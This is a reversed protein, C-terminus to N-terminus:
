RARRVRRRESRNAARERPASRASARDGPRARGAAKLARVRAAGPRTPGTQSRLRSGDAVEIRGGAFRRQFRAVQEPSLDRNTVLLVPAGGAAESRLALQDMAKDVIKAALDRDVPHSTPLSKMEVLTGDRLVADTEHGGVDASLARVKSGLRAAVRLEFSPGVIRSVSEAKALRSVVEHVGAVDQVRQLAVLTERAHPAFNRRTLVQRVADGDVSRRALVAELARRAAAGGPGELEARVEPAAGRLAVAVGDGSGSETSRPAELQAIAQAGPVLALLAILLSLPLVRRSRSM